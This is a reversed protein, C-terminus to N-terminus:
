IRRYVCPRSEEEVARFLSETAAAVGLEESTREALQHQIERPPHVAFVPEALVQKFAAEEAQVIDADEVAASRQGSATVQLLRVTGGPHREKALAHQFHGDLQGNFIGTVALHCGLEDVM